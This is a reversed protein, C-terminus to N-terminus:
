KSTLRLVDEITGSFEVKKSLYCDKKEHKFSVIFKDTKIQTTDQYRSVEGKLKNISDNIEAEISANLRDAEEIIQLNQLIEADVFNLWDNVKKETFVGICNPEKLSEKKLQERKYHSVKQVDKFYSYYPAFYYKKTKYDHRLIAINNQPTLFCDHSHEVFYLEVEDSNNKYQERFEFMLANEFKDLIENKLMPKFSNIKDMYNVSFNKYSNKITQTEFLIKPANEKTYLNLKKAVELLNKM